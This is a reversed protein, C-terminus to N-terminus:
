EDVKIKKVEEIMYGIKQYKDIDEVNYIDTYLGKNEFFKFKGNWFMESHNKSEEMIKIAFDVKIAYIAADVMKKRDRDHTVLNKNNGIFKNNEIFYESRNSIETYSAIVDYNYDINRICDSILSPSRFLQNVALVIIWDPKFKTQMYFNYIGYYDLYSIDYENKCEQYITHIFGLNEAYTLMEKNDSIIFVQRFFNLDRILVYTYKLAEKNRLIAQENNGRITIFIPIQIRFNIQAM